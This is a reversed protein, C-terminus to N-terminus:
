ILLRLLLLQSVMGHLHIHLQICGDLKLPLVFAELELQSVDTARTFFRHHMPARCMHGHVTTHLCPLYYFGGLRNGSCRSPTVVHLQMAAQRDPEDMYGHAIWNYAFTSTEITAIRMHAVNTEEACAPPSTTCPPGPWHGNETM